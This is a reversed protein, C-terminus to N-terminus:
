SEDEIDEPLLWVRAERVGRGSTATVEVRIRGYQVTDGVAPLRDLLALVLGSVSEVDEHELELDFQQGLEELRLTGAVRLSGDADRITEPASPQGEDLEGVVEEFLQRKYM